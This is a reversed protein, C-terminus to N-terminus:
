PETVVPETVVGTTSAMKSGKATLELTVKIEAPDALKVFQPLNFSVPLEHRGAQLNTVDVLAQIDKVDIKDLIGPAGELQVSLLGSEPFVLETDFETNAGVITVPINELLKSVSPVIDVEIDVKAPEVQTIGSKLPIELSFTQDQTLASLNIQLGDYFELGDLVEQPGYVTLRDTSLAYGSVAYGRPPQGIMKVQMPMTKFPITVPVEVDVVPPSIIGEVERGDKDFVGLKVQKAVASKAQDISIEGKVTEIDDIQGAPVTVFVRSPKIIPTGAKYGEEPTGVPIIVVPVERKQMEELTVRVAPPYIEVEVGSPFGEPRLALSHTGKSYNNLDLVIRYEDPKVRRLASERGRLTLQVEAPEVSVIHFQTKDYVPTIGVGYIQEPLTTTIQGPAANNDMRVVVWLLVGLVLAIIRVVNTNRLWRDM